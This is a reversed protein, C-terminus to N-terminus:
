ATRGALQMLGAPSLSAQAVLLPSHGAHGAVGAMHGACVMAGGDMTVAEMIQPVGDKGGPRLEEPPFGLPDLPARDEPPLRDQAAAAARMDEDAKRVAAVHVAAWQMQATICRACQLPRVTVPVQQLAAAVASFLMQPLQQVLAAMPTVGGNPSFGPPVQGPVAEPSTM